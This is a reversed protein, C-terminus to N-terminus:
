AVDGARERYFELAREATAKPDRSRLGEKALKEADSAKMNQVLYKVTPLCAPAMSLEDAGLGLLLPVMVPDGAM